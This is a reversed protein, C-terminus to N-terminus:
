KVAKQLDEHEDGIYEKNPGGYPIKTSCICFLVCNNSKEPGLLGSYFWLWLRMQRKTTVVVVSILDNIRWMKVLFQGTCLCYMCTYLAGFSLSGACTTSVSSLQFAGILMCGLSWQVSLWKRGRRQVSHRLRPNGKIFIWVCSAYMGWIFMRLLFLRMSTDAAMGIATGPILAHGQCFVHFWVTLSAAESLASLNSDHVICMTKPVSDLEHGTPLGAQLYKVCALKFFFSAAYSRSPPSKNQVRAYDKFAKSRHWSAHSLVLGWTALTTEYFQLTSCV